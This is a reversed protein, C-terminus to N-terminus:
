SKWNNLDVLGLRAGYHVLELPSHLGLKAMNNARHNGVTKFSIFLSKPIAMPTLGETLLRLVDQERHTIAAYRLRRRDGSRKPRDRKGAAPIMRDKLLDPLTM